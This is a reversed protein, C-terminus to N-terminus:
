AVTLEDMWSHRRAVAAVVEDLSPNDGAFRSRHEFVLTAPPRVVFIGGLQPVDGFSGTIAHGDHRARAYASWASPHLFTAIWSRRVLAADYSAREPDTLLTVDPRPLGKHEAFKRAQNVSGSGVIVQHGGARTIADAGEILEAVLEHCFLCGFQRVLTVVTPRDDFVDRLRVPNGDLDLCRAAALAAGPSVHADFAPAPRSSITKTASM